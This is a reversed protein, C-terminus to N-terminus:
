GVGDPNKLLAIAGHPMGTRVLVWADRWVTRLM